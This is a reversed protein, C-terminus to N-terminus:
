TCIFSYSLCAFREFDSCQDKLTVECLRLTALEAALSAECQSSQPGIPAKLRPKRGVISM